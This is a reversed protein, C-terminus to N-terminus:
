LAALSKSKVNTEAKVEVPIIENGSPRAGYVMLPKRNNSIKWATLKNYIFRKM